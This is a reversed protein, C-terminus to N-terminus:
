RNKKFAASNGLRDTHDLQIRWTHEKGGNKLLDADKGKGTGITCIAISSYNYREGDFEHWAKKYILTFSPTVYVCWGAGIYDYFIMKQNKELDDKLNKYIRDKGVNQAIKSIEFYTEVDSPLTKLGKVTKIVNKIEVLDLVRERDNLMSRLTAEYQLLASDICNKGNIPKPLYEQELWELIDSYLLEKYSNKTKLADRVSDPLSGTSPSKGDLTLYVMTFSQTTKNIEAILSDVKNSWGHYTQSSVGLEAAVYRMLQEKSDPAGIKNEVIISHTTANNYQIKIYLDMHGTGLTSNGIAPHQDSIEIVKAISCGQNISGVGVMKLFSKLNDHNPTDSQLLKMLIRTHANEDANAIDLLLFPKKQNYLSLLKNIM